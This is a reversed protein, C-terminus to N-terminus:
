RSLPAKITRRRHLKRLSFDLLGKLYGFGYSIHMTLFCRGLLTLGRGGLGHAIAEKLAILYIFSLYLLSLIVLGGRPTNFFISLGAMLLWGGVLAPPGLQRFTTIQGTKLNGLPKFYAYQYFMTGLQRITPRAFYRIVISPILIIKGGMKRLRANFEDDQNRVMDTDFLGISNFVHRRYCGFPVTDVERHKDSGIRYYANGVGFRNASAIAAVKAELTNDGPVIKWIGGVNDAGTEILSNVLSWVYDDPYEAHADMRVIVEGHSAEIARNLAYPVIQEPNDLLRVQPYAKGIRCIIERTGDDSMGDAVIVEIELGARKGNIVSLLVQEIFSVENRCPIIVSVKIM